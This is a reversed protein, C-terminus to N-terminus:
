SRPAAGFKRALIALAKREVDVVEAETPTRDPHAVTLRLALSKHGAPLEDGYYDSVFSAQSQPLDVLAAAVQAWTVEAPLVVAVERAARPFRDLGAFARPRAAALLPEVDLELYAAEGALKRRQLLAPQLQGAYGLVQRGLKVVAVRGPAFARGLSSVAAAAVTEVPEVTLEAGLERAVMDLVGKLHRYAEDPRLMTVALRLPEDPQEGVERKIFVRSLEYFALEKAYTRNRELVALHSPLLASRLYAQEISLPNKLKLQDDLPMEAESLQAESVFSYTLVEFLGAGYLVQQLRRRRGTATDFAVERPQWAPLRAPVQDYGLVRVVEEVLDQSEKLDPRWWPLAPATIFDALNDAYRCAGLFQPDETMVALKDERVGADALEAWDGKATREMDVAHLIKGKGLYLAVHSVGERAREDLRKWSGGRFLLDGPLLESLEVPRGAKFQEHATHGISLGILSYLYDTLYSCDFATVGNTKFNAGFKYPRGLLARAEAAIDFPRAEIQLRGLLAVAQNVSVEFGLLRNLLSHRLGIRQVWPWVNLQDATAKVQVEALQALREVARSLAVPPLQVPLGREFRASAETRLGHRKAMKRVTAGDFTAAELLIERTQSTVQTRAGGMLGALGVPGDADAVVLDLHSLEREIGDLTTLREGDKAHRVTLPLTIKAADYAHLPQGLELNVYNTVDVVPSIARVGGARLRATMEPPSSPAVRDLQLRMLMFRDAKLKNALIQGAAGTRVPEPLSKMPMDQIAAVERALGAVSLLDFRNAQTKIEVIADPPYIDCLTTGLQSSAPLELIGSHDAGLGLEHESCLMGESAEGRLKAPMITDGGPLTAGVQALAVMLGERVNPAGCVVRVERKGTDVFVLKLRDANPHQVVKKVLAVVIKKDLAKSSTFQEVEIGAQELAAVIAEDSITRGLWEKIWATSVKM